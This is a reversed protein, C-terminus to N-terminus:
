NDTDQEHYYLWKCRASWVQFHVNPPNSYPISFAQRPSQVQNGRVFSQRSCDLRHPLKDVRRHLLKEIHLRGM